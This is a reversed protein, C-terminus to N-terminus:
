VSVNLIFVKHQAMTMLITYNLPMHVIGSFLMVFKLPWVQSLGALNIGKRFM